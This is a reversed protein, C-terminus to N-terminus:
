GGSPEGGEVSEGKTRTIYRVNPNLNIAQRQVKVFDETQQYLMDVMAVDRSRAFAVLDMNVINGQKDTLVPYYYYGAVDVGEGKIIIHSEGEILLSQPLKMTVWQRAKTSPDQTEIKIEKNLNVKIIFDNKWFFYKRSNWCLFNKNGDSTICEGLYYGVAKSGFSGAILMVDFHAFLKTFKLVLSVVLFFPFTYMALLFSPVDDLATAIVFFLASLFIGVTLTYLWFPRERIRKRNAQHRCLKKTRNYDFLFINAKEKQKSLWRWLFILIVAIIGIVLLPLWWTALFDVLGSLPSFVQKQAIPEAERRIVEVASVADVFLFLAFIFFVALISKGFRM